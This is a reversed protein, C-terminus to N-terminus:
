SNMLTKLDATKRLSILHVQPGEREFPQDGGLLQALRERGRNLRSKITGVACGVVEAADEYAFGLGGVLILAEQQEASLTALASKFDMLDTAAGQAPESRLTGVLM